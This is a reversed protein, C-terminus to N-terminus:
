ITIQKPEDDKPMQHISFYGNRGDSRGESRCPTQLCETTQGDENNWLLCHRCTDKWKASATPVFDLRGWIMSIFHNEDLSLGWLKLQTEKNKM